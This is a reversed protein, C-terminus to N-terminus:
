IVTVRRGVVEGAAFGEVVDVQDHSEAVVEFGGGGDELL